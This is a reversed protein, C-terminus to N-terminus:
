GGRKTSRRKKAAAAAAARRQTEQRSADLYTQAVTPSWPDLFLAPGIARLSARTDGQALEFQALRLWTESSSPQMHVAESYLRRAGAVNGAASEVTAGVYLPTTSLPDSSRARQVDARAAPLKNQEVAELAADTSNVSRQPQWTTWVAAATLVILGVAGALRWPQARWARVAARRDLRPPVPDLPSGRGAVWGACLLAPVANGPVIWTWDIFSHVGFVVVVAALSLMGVREPTYRSERAARPVLGTTRAAAALWAALLALAIALGVLGLDAMTQVVYGHAHRVNLTDHRVRTRATRYGGAGVGVAEHRRWIRLAEDRYRARVSGVATLRDPDNAPIAANPNTLDNFGKSVSGTLGNASTALFGAVVVPVLALLALAALGAGRRAIPAPAREALSFNVALGAILAGILMAVVLIGLAHGATARAAVGIRDESLADQGFAWVGVLLGALGATALAAAGRLRLPVFAFWLACGIAMALLSGRSYALLCAVVLLSLAPYALANLVAHGSRRAALWLCAPVAMAALIGVSNWYGFPERLRAYIEDPNLAGPFVKTLVAYGCVVVAALVVGGLLSAWREPAVRSLTLGLAFAAFWALTRNAEVWADDPDVAWMISVATFVVLVAFLALTVGGYLRRPPGLLLAACGAVGALIDLAIEVTTLPGLQLGGSGGLAVAALLAGFGLTSLTAASVRPLAIRRALARPDVPAAHSSVAGALQPAV